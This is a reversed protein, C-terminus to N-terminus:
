VVDPFTNDIKKEMDCKAQYYEEWTIYKTRDILIEVLSEKFMDNDKNHNITGWDYCTANDSGQSMGDRFLVWLQHLTLEFKM